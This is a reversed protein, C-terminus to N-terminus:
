LTQWGRIVTAGFDGAQQTALDVRMQTGAAGGQIVIYQVGWPRITWTTPLYTTTGELVLVLFKTGDLVLPSPWDLRYDVSPMQYFLFPISTVFSRFVDAFKGGVADTIAKTGSYASRNIRLITSAGYHDYLYRGFLYSGGYSADDDQVWNTLSWNEHHNLWANVHIVGVTTGQQYGFGVLDECLTSFAETVWIDNLCDGGNLVRQSFHILHQFEHALTGKLTPIENLVPNIYIMDAENSANTPSATMYNEPTFYGYTVYGPRSAIPTILVIIRGNGDADMPEGFTGTVTSYYSEFTNVFDDIVSQSVPNANDVYWIAHASTAKCTSAVSEIMNSVNNRKKFTRVQGVSDRLGISQSRRTATRSGLILSRDKLMQAELERMRVDLSPDPRNVMFVDRQSGCMLSKKALAMVQQRHMASVAVQVGAQNANAQNSLTYSYNGETSTQPYLAIISLSDASPTPVYFTTNGNTFTPVSVSADTYAGGYDPIDQYITVNGVNVPGPATVNVSVSRTQFGSKSVELTRQGTLATLSFAGNQGPSTTFSNSGIKVTAGTMPNGNVDVVTGTVTVQTPTSGGGGCGAVVLAVVLLLALVSVKIGLRM